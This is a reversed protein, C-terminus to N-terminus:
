SCLIFLAVYTGSVEGRMVWGKGRVVTVVRGGRGEGSM